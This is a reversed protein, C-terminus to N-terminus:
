KPSDSVRTHARRTADLAGTIFQDRDPARLREAIQRAAELTETALRDPDATVDLTLHLRGDNHRDLRATATPTM